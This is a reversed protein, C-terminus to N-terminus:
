ILTYGVRRAFKVAPDFEYEPIEFRFAELIEHDIFYVFLKFESSVYLDYSEINSVAFLRDVTSRCVLLLLWSAETFTWIPAM